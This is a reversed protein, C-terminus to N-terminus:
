NSEKIEFLRTHKLLKKRLPIYEHILGGPMDAAGAIYDALMSPLGMAAAADEYQSEPYFEGLKRHAVATIPCFTAKRGKIKRRMEGQENLSWGTKPVLRFFEKETMTKM